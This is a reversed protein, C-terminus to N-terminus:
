LIAMWKERDKQLQEQKKTNFSKSGEYDNILLQGVQKQYMDENKPQKDFRNHFTERQSEVPINSLLFDRFEEWTKYHSPLKKNSFV